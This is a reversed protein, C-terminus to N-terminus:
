NDEVPQDRKIMKKLEAQSTFNGTPTWSADDISWNKWLVLFEKTKRKAHADRWRWRLLKEVDYERDDEPEVDEIQDETIPHEWRSTSFPRLLSVHFINHIKWADPLKLEYAM